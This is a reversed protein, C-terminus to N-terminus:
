LVRIKGEISQRALAGTLLAFIKVAVRSLSYPWELSPEGAQLSPPWIAGYLCPSPPASGTNGLPVWIRSFLLAAPICLIQGFVEHADRHQWDLRLIGVHVQTHRWTNRQGLIHALELRSFAADHEGATIHAHMLQMEINFAASVSINNM